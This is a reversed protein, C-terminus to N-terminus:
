SFSLFHKWGDASHGKTTCFDVFYCKGGLVEFLSYLKCEMPRTLGM